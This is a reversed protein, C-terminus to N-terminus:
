QVSQLLKFYVALKCQRQLYDNIGFDDLPQLRFPFYNKKTRVRLMFLIMWRVYRIHENYLSSKSIIVQVFSSIVILFSIVVLFGVVLCGVSFGVVLCAVVLCGVVFCGMVGGGLCVDLWDLRVVGTLVGSKGPSPSYAGWSAVRVSFSGQLSCCSCNVDQLVRM